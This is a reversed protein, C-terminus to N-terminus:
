QIAANKNFNEKAWMPQLNSFHFCRKQEEPDKLDFVACPIEHHVHWGGLGYNDWNMGDTFKGQIHLKLEQINCGILESISDQNKSTKNKITNRVISRLKDGIGYNYDTTRREKKRKRREYLQIKDIEKWFDSSNKIEPHDKFYQDRKENLLVKLCPKCYDNVYLVRGCRLCKKVTEMM